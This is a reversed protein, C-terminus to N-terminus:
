KSGIQISDTRGVLGGTLGYVGSYLIKAIGMYLSPKSLEDVFDPCIRLIREIEQQCLHQLKHPRHQQSLYARYFQTKKLEYRNVNKAKLLMIYKVLSDIDLM